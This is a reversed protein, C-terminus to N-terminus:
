LKDLYFNGDNDDNDFGWTGNIKGTTKNFTGKFTYVTNLPAKFQYHATFVTGNLTWTGSGKVAGTTNTEEIIGGTKISIHLDNAPVENDFGKNGSWKGEISTENGAVEKDKKCSAFTCVTVLLLVSSKLFITSYNKLSKM